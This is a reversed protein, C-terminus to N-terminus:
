CKTCISVRSSQISSSLLGVIEDVDVKDFEVFLGGTKSCLEKYGPISRAKGERLVSSPLLM